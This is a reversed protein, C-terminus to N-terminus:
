NGYSIIVLEHDDCHVVDSKYGSCYTDNNLFWNSIYDLVDIEEKFEESYEIIKGFRGCIVADIMETKGGASQQKYSHDYNNRFQQYINQTKM